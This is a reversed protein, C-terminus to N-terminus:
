LDHVLAAFRNDHLRPPQGEHNRPQPLCCERANTIRGNFAFERQNIRYCSNAIQKLSFDLTAFIRAFEPLREEPVTILPKECGLWDIAQHILNTAIGRAFVKSSTRVTCLKKEHLTRKAIVVSFQGGREHAFLARSGDELGPVVKTWYWNEFDPYYRKLDALQGYVTSVADPTCTLM